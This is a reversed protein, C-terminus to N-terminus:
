DLNLHTEEFMIQQIYTDLSRLPNQHLLAARVVEYEPCLAMLVQILHLHEESIKGSINSVLDTPSLLFTM